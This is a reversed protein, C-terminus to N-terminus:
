GACLWALWRRMVERHDLDSGPDACLNLRWDRYEALWMGVSLDSASELEHWHLAMLAPILGELDSRRLAKGAFRAFAPEPARDRRGIFLQLQAQLMSLNLSIGNSIAATQWRQHFAATIGALSLACRAMREALFEQALSVAEIGASQGGRRYLTSVEMRETQFDQIEARGQLWARLQRYQLQTMPAVPAYVVAGEVGGGVFLQRAQCWSVLQDWLQEQLIASPDSPRLRLWLIDEIM